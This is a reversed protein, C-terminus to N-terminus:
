MQGGCARTVEKFAEFDRCGRNGCEQKVCEGSVHGSCALNVDSITSLQGCNFRGCGESVCSMDCTGQCSNAATRIADMTSCFRLGLFQCSNLLCSGNINDVCAQEIAMTDDSSSCFRYGGRLECAVDFCSREFGDDTTECIFGRKVKADAFEPSLVGFLSSLFFVALISKMPGGERFVIRLRLSRYSAALPSEM